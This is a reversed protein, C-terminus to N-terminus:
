PLLMLYWEAKWFSFFSIQVPNFLCSWIKILALEGRQSAIGRIVLWVITSLAKSQSAKKNNVPLEESVVSGHMSFDVPMRCMSYLAFSIWKSVKGSWVTAKWMWEHILVRCSTFVYVCRKSSKCTHVYVGVCSLSLQLAQKHQWLAGWQMEGRVLINLGTVMTWCVRAMGPDLPSGTLFADLTTNLTAPPGRRGPTLGKTYVSSTLIVRRM